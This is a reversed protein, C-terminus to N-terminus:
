YESGESSGDKYAFANPDKALEEIYDLIARREKESAVEFGMNYSERIKTEYRGKLYFYISISSILGGIIAGAIFVIAM